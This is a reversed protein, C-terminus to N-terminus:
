VIKHLKSTSVKKVDEGTCHARVGKVKDSMKNKPKVQVCERLPMFEEPAPPAGGISRKKRKETGVKFSSLFEHISSCDSLKTTIDQDLSINAVM